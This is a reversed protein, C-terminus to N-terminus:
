VFRRAHEEEEERMIIIMENKAGMMQRGIIGRIM